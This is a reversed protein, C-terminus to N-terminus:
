NEQGSKAREFLQVLDEESLPEFRKRSRLGEFTVIMTQYKGVTGHKCNLSADKFGPFRGQRSILFKAYRAYKSENFGRFKAWYEHRAPADVALNELASDIKEYMGLVDIVFLCEDAEIEEGVEPALDDYNLEYGWEVIELAQGFQEKEEGNKALRSLIEYQNRLILREAETLKIPM